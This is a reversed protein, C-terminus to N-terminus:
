SASGSARSSPCRRARRARWRGSRTSSTRPASRRATTSSSARPPAQGRLRHLEQQPEVRARARSQALSGPEHDRAPRVPEPHPVPRDAHRRPVPERDRGNGRRRLGRAARRGEEPDRRVRCGRRLALSVTRAADCSRRQASAERSVTLRGSTPSRATTISTPCRSRWTSAFSWGVFQVNVRDCRGSRSLPLLQTTATTGRSGLSPDRLVARCIEYRTCPRYVIMGVQRFCSRRAPRRGPRGGRVASGFSATTSPVNSAEPRPKGSPGTTIGSPEM